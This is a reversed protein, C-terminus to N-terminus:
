SKKLKFGSGRKSECSARSFNEEKNAGKLYQFAVFYPKEPAKEGGPEVGGAREAKM